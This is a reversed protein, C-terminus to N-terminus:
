DEADTIAYERKKNLFKSIRLEKEDIAGGCFGVACEYIRWVLPGFKFAAEAVELSHLDPDGQPPQWGKYLHKAGRRHVIENRRKLADLVCAKEEQTVLDPKGMRDALLSIKALLGNKGAAVVFKEAEDHIIDHANMRAVMSVSVSHKSLFQEPHIMCLLLLTDNVVAELMSVIFVWGMDVRFKDFHQWASPDIKVLMKLGDLTEVLAKSKLNTNAAAIAISSKRGVLEAELFGELNEVFAYLVSHLKKREDETM